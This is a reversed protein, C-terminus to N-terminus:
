KASDALKKGKPLVKMSRAVGQTVQILEDKEMRSLVKYTTASSTVGIVPMIDRISTAYGYQQSFSRIFKVVAIKREGEIRQEAELRTENEHRQLQYKKM